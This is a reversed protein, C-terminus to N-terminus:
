EQDGKWRVGRQARDSPKADKGLLRDGSHPTGLVAGTTGNTTDEAKDQPWHKIVHKSSLDVCDFYNLNLKAALRMGLKELEPNTSFKIGTLSLVEIYTGNLILKYYFKGQGSKQTMLRIYIEDLTGKHQLYHHIYFEYADENLDIILTRRGISTIILWLGVLILFMFFGAFQM